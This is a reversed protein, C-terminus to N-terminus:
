NEEHEAVSIDIDELLLAGCKAAMAGIVASPLIFFGIQFWGFRIVHPIQKISGNKSYIKNSFM